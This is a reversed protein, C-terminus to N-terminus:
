NRIRAGRESVINCVKSAIGAPKGDGELGTAERNRYMQWHQTQENAVYYIRLDWLNLREDDPRTGHGSHIAFTAKTMPDNLNQGSYYAAVAVTAREVRLSACESNSAFEAMLRNEFERLQAISAMLCGEQREGGYICSAEAFSLNYGDNLRIVTEKQKDCAYLGVLPVLLLVHLSHVLRSKM